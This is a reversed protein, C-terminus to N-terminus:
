NRCRASFSRLQTPQGFRTSDSEIVAVVKALLPEHSRQLLREVRSLLRAEDRCKVQDLPYCLRLKPIIAALRFVLFHEVLHFALM